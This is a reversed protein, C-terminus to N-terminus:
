HTLAKRAPADVNRPLKKVVPEEKTRVPSSIKGFAGFLRAKRKYQSATSEFKPSVVMSGRQPLHLNKRSKGGGSLNEVLKEIDRQDTPINKADMSLFNGIKKPFGGKVSGALNEKVSVQISQGSGKRRNLDLDLKM